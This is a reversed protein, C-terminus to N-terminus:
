YASILEGQELALPNATNSKIQIMRLGNFFSVHNDNASSFVGNCRDGYMYLSKYMIRANKKLFEPLCFYQANPMTKDLSNRVAGVGIVIYVFVFM